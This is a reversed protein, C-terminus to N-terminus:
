QGILRGVLRAQGIYRWDLSLPEDPGPVPTGFPAAYIAGSPTCHVPETIDPLQDTEYVIEVARGDIIGPRRRYVRAGGEAMTAGPGLPYPVQAAELREELALAYRVVNRYGRGRYRVALELSARMDSVLERWSM